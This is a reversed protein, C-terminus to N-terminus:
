LNYMKKYNKKFNTKTKLLDTEFETEETKIPQNEDFNFRNDM